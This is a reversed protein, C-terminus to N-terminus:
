QGLLLTKGYRLWMVYSWLIHVVIEVWDASASFILYMREYNLSTLICKFRM